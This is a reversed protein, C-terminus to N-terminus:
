PGAHESPGRIVTLQALPEPEVTALAPATREPLTGRVLELLRGVAGSRWALLGIALLAAVSIVLLGLARLPARETAGAPQPSGAMTATLEGTPAPGNPIAVALAPMPLHPASVTTSSPPRSDHAAAPASANSRTTDHVGAAEPTSGGSDDSTGTRTAGGAVAAALVDLDAAARPWIRYGRDPQSGTTDQGLVGRVEIWDGRRISSVDIGSRPSIFVRAEGSGDDIGFSLSGASSRRPNETLAGRTVVLRAELEEGLQGTTRRVPAPEASIGLRQPPATVRVALMGSKTSMAGVLDVVEGRQVSGAQDSLRVLIAASADQVVASGPDILDSGVTVVGRLRVTANKPRARAEDITVLPVNSSPTPSSSPVPSGSASASATPTSTPAPTPSPSPTPTPPATLNLIDAPDRPQVRYGLLGTGGSDRQGVVGVLHVSAGRQWAAVDIAATDNLLVRIPGSGDDVDFAVGASLMTASSSVSGEIEILRGEVSEDVSGTSVPTAAPEAGVGLLTLDAGAARITRQSYRDDVAGRVLLADGRAFTGSDPLVAIGGTSDALYGGGDGFTSDTLAIGAVSVTAGDPMARAEAVTVPAPTPAPTPTASATVSPTATPTPTPVATPTPSPVASPSPSPSTTEIPSATAAVTPSATAAPTPSSASNQPDPVDRIVFDLLNDDSDFGSGSVGGPLRELSAGASPAPAPTGELWTNAANGWGVADIAAAAGVIRLAVSGGTAALGSAYTADAITAFVGAENAVLLHAGSPLEGAGAPWTAKRTVTAGSASIYVLELGELPLDATAPNYLEIFEDSASAGGTSLESILLHPAADVEAALQEREIPAGLVPVISLVLVSLSLL